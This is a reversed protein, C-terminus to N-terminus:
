YGWQTLLWNIWIAALTSSGLVFLVWALFLMLVQKIM